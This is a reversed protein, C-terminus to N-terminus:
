PSEHLVLGSVHKPAVVVSNPPQGESDLYVFPIGEELAKTLVPEVDSPGQGKVYSTNGAATWIITNKM